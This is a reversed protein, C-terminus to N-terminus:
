PHNLICQWVEHFFTIFNMVPPCFSLSKCQQIFTHIKNKHYSHLHTRYNIQERKPLHANNSNISVYERKTRIEMYWTTSDKASQIHIRMKLFVRRTNCKYRHSTPCCLGKKCCVQNYKCRIIRWVVMLINTKNSSPICQYNIWSTVRVEMFLHTVKRETISFCQEYVLNSM